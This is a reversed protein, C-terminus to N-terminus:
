AVAAEPAAPHDLFGYQKLKRLWRPANRKVLLQGCDVESDRHPQSNRLM